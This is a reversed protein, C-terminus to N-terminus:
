LYTTPRMRCRTVESRLNVHRALDPLSSGRHVAHRRCAYGCVVSPEDRGGMSVGMGGLRDGGSGLQLTTGGRIVRGHIPARVDLGVFVAVVSAM